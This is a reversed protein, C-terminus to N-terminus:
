GRFKTTPRSKQMLNFVQMLDYATLECLLATVRDHLQADLQPEIEKMLRVLRVEQTKVEDDTVEGDAIATLFSDLRKAQDSILPAKSDEDFWSSKGREKADSDKAAM